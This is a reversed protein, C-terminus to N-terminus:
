RRDRAMLAMLTIMRALILRIMLPIMHTILAATRTTQSREAEQNPSPNPSPNPNPNPSPNPNLTM